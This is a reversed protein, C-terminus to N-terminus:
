DRASMRKSMRMRLYESPSVNAQSKQLARPEDTKNLEYYSLVNAWLSSKGQIILDLASFPFFPFRVHKKKLGHAWVRDLLDCFGAVLTNEQFLVLTKTKILLYAGFIQDIDFEISCFKLCGVEVGQIGSDAHGLHLAEKGM